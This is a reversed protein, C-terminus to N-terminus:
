AGPQKILSLSLISAHDSLIVGRKRAFLSLDTFDLSQGSLEKAAASFPNSYLWSSQSSCFCKYFM